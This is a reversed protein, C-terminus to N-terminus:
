RQTPPHPRGQSACSVPRDVTESFGAPHTYARKMTPLNTRLSLPRQGSRLRPRTDRPTPACLACLRLSRGRRLRHPCIRPQADTVSSRGPGTGGNGEYRDHRAFRGWRSPRKTAPSATACTATQLCTPAQRNRERITLSWLWCPPLDKSARGPHIPPASDFRSGTVPRVPGCRPNAVTVSSAEGPARLSARHM